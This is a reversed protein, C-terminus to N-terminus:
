SNEEELLQQIAALTAVKIAKGNIADILTKTSRAVVKTTHANSRLTANECLTLHNKETLVLKMTNRIDDIKEKHTDVKNQLRGWMVLFGGFQILLTIGMAAYYKMMYIGTLPKFCDM